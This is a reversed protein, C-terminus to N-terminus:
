RLYPIPTGNYAHAALLRAVLAPKYAQYLAPAYQAWLQQAAPYDNQMVTGLLACLLLYETHMPGVTALANPLLASALKLMGAPDRRSVAAWIGVWSRQQQSLTGFCASAGVRQWVESMEERSLQPIMLNAVASVERLWTDKAPDIRCEIFAGQVFRANNALTSDVEALASDNGGSRFYDLLQVATRTYQARSYYYDKSAASASFKPAPPNLMELVPVGANRFAIINAADTHLYRARTAGLDLVPFYDSNARIPYSAFLPALSHQDGIRHLELDQANHIGVRALATRTGRQEFANESPLPIPVDARAVIVLDSYNAAYIVYHEFQRGLAKLVSAVLEDNIEYTQLWQVLVGQPALHRKALSYFEETFLAATGSVWPNSPESLIIDYHQNYTSFFSKADDIHFHSQPSSYALEVRPRFGNAAEIVSPEIEITDVSALQNASLLTHTSLGSGMGIVAARTATPHLALPLAGAMVMTSEDPSPAGSSVMNIMADPKGNTTISVNRETQTASSQILDISATKGDKHYLNVLGPSFIKGTRYVGSAMRSLDMPAAALTFALAGAGLATAATVWHLALRERFWWLLVMGLAVDLAAGTLLLGKLGLGPMGVHTAFFVGAIAGLTNAAYVGGISKEGHGHRLLTFTLLPLTMGALFTTPVMIVAAIGHSALNFLAYGTDDKSLHNVLWAMVDFSQHYIFLTSAAMVGMLIQVGALFRVPQAIRDIRRKIWLGGLALGLIFASLMLEFAHTSSGLVLALMRIWAIEYIFSAAGTFAAIGLFFVLWRRAQYPMPTTATLTFQPEESSQARVMRWVLLALVINLGGAFVITGPLGIAEILVFGSVLVGIAAGISNTFYLMSVTAGPQAPYRRILAGSLLPFTMGLLMSQPLIM